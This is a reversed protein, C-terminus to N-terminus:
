LSWGFIATDFRRENGPRTFDEISSAVYEVRGLLHEPTQQQARAIKEPGPDIATVFAAQEVYRRTLHGDGCGVELVRKGDLTALRQLAAFQIGESDKVYLM